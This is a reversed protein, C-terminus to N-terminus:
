FIETPLSRCCDDLGVAQSLLERTFASKTFGGVGAAMKEKNTQNSPKHKKLRCKPKTKSKEL